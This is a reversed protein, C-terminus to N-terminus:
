RKSMKEVDNLQNIEQRLKRLGRSRVVFFLIIWIAFLTCFPMVYGAHIGLKRAIGILWLVFTVVSLVLPGFSWLLTSHLLHGSRKLVQRYFELGTDPTASAPPTTSWMDRHLISQGAAAWAVALAFVLRVGPDHARLIGFASFAAVFLASATNGLLERRTKSQYERAKQHIMEMTMTPEETPQSQWITKLTHNPLDDPM